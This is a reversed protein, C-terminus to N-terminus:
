CVWSSNKDVSKSFFDRVTGSGAGFPSSLAYATELDNLGFAGQKELARTATSPYAIGKKM